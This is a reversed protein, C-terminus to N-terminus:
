LSEDGNFNLHSSTLATSEICSYNVEEGADVMSGMFVGSRKARIDMTVKVFDVFDCM